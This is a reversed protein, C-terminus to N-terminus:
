VVSKRDAVLDGRRAILDIEGLPTRYRKALIRWGKLQLSWAALSEAFHGRQQAKRKNRDAM